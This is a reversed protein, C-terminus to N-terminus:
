KGFLANHIVIVLITHVLADLYQEPGAIWRVIAMATLSLTIAFGFQLIPKMTRGVEAVSGM